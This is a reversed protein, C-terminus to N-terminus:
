RITQTRNTDGGGSLCGIWPRNTLCGFAVRVGFRDCLIAMREQCVRIARNQDPETTELPLLRLDVLLRCSSLRRRWDDGQLARALGVPRHASRPVDRDRQAGSLDPRERALVAGALRRDHPHEGAHLTGVLAVHQDVALERGEVAGGVRAVRADRHDVLLRREERVRLMASFTIIPRWGSPDSRRMSRLASCRVTLSRSSRRPTLSSGSCGTRPRDCRRDASRRSRWPARAEVRAHQDHVLRGRREGPWSTSRRNPTTRVSLSRPAATSNM